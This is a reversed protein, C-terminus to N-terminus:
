VFLNTIKKKASVSKVPLLLKFLRIYKEDAPLSKLYITPAYTLSFM